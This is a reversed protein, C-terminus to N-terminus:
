EGDEGKNIQKTKNQKENEAQVVNNEINLMGMWYECKYNKCESDDRNLSM